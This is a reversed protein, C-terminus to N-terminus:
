RCSHIQQLVDKYVEQWHAPQAPAEPEPAAATAASAADGTAAAAAAESGGTQQSAHSGSAAAEADATSALPGRETHQPTSGGHEEAAAGAQAPDFEGTKVSVTSLLSDGTHIRVYVMALSADVEETDTGDETKPPAAREGTRSHMVAAAPASVANVTYQLCSDPDDTRNAQM